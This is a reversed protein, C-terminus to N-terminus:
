QQGCSTGNSTPPMGGKSLGDFQSDVGGVRLSAEEHTGTEASDFRCSKEVTQGLDGALATCDLSLRPGAGLQVVEQRM